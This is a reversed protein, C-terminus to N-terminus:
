KVQNPMAYGTAIHKATVITWTNLRQVNHMVEGKKTTRTDVIVDTDRLDATRVNPKAIMASMEKENVEYQDANFFYNFKHFVQEMNAAANQIMIFSENGLMRGDGVSHDSVRVQAGLGLNWNLANNFNVYMYRSHGYDTISNSGMTVQFGAAEFMAVTTAFVQEVQTNVTHTM